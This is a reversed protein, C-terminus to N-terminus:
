CKRLYSMQTKTNQQTILHRYKETANVLKPSKGLGYTKIGNVTQNNNISIIIIIIIHTQQM